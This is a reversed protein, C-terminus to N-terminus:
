FSLLWLVYEQGSLLWDPILMVNVMNMCTNNLSRMRNLQFIIMAVIHYSGQIQLHIREKELILNYLIHSPFMCCFWSVIFSPSFYLFWRPNAYSLLVKWFVGIAHLNRRQKKRLRLMVIREKMRNCIPWFPLFNSSSCGYIAEFPTPCNIWDYRFLNFLCILLIFFIHPLSVCMMKVLTLLEHWLKMWMRWRCKNCLM